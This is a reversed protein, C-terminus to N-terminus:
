VDSMHQNSRCRIVVTSSNNSSIIHKMGSGTLQRSPSPVSPSHSTDRRPSAKGVDAATAVDKQKQKMQRRFKAFNSRAGATVATHTEAAAVAKKKRQVDCVWSTILANCMVFWSTNLANCMV